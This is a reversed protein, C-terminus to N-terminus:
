CFHAGLAAARLWNGVAAETRIAGERLSPTMVHQSLRVATVAISPNLEIERM